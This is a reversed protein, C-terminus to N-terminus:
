QNCVSKVAVTSKHKITNTIGPLSACSKKKKFKRFTSANLTNQIFILLFVFIINNLLKIKKFCHTCAVRDGERKSGCAVVVLRGQHYVEVLWCLSLPLAVWLGVIRHEVEVKMALVIELWGAVVIAYDMREDTGEM